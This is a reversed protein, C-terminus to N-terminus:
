TNQCTNRHIFICSNGWAMRDMKKMIKARVHQGLEAMLVYVICFDCLLCPLTMGFNVLLKLGNLHNVLMCAAVIWENNQFPQVSVNKM